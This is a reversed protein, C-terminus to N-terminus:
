LQLNGISIGTIQDFFVIMFPMNISRNSEFIVVNEMMLFGDNDNLPKLEDLSNDSRYTNIVDEVIDSFVKNNSNETSELLLKGSIIGSTTFLILNNNKLDEINPINAFYKIITKKLSPIGM